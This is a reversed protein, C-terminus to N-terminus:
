DAADGELFLYATVIWLKDNTVWAPAAAMGPNVQMGTGQDAAWAKYAALFRRADAPTKSNYM